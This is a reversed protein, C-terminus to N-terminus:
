VFQSYLPKLQIINADMKEAIRYCEEKEREGSEKMESDENM